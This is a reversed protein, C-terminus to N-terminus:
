ISDYNRRRLFMYAGFILIISYLTLLAMGVGVDKTNGLLNVRYLSNGIIALPNIRGLIPLNKDLIIKIDPSMLGSLFSLFLTSAIAFMTKVGISQKNSAGIFIGLSVGFINGLIILALSYRAERLLNMKLVFEIFLLLLGNALLNFALAVIIGAFLFDKKKLPTINLRAGINTLNGQALSVTEIGAFVSYTSVMGILSYFIVLIGNAEQDRDAIYNAEFDYNEMPRNLSNMQKIQEVIGKIMTQNIGSDNVLINLDEDIFGDINGEALNRNADKRPVEVINVMDITELIASIPNEREMGIDIDELGINSIGSFAIYFFSVLIIPYILGWFLFGMDRYVNKGQYICNRLLTKM